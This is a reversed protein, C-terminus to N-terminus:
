PMVSSRSRPKRLLLMENAGRLVEYDLPVIESVIGAAALGARLSPLYPHRTGDLSVLPYIRVERRAVRLLERLSARHFAEDLRDAYLFLFHGCLVLDFAGDAPDLAPLTGGRYRGTAQGGPFDTLFRESAAQRLAWLDKFEGVQALQFANPSAEARAQTHAFDLRTQLAVRANSFRYIPDVSTVRGGQATVEANFSASGAAVDLIAGKFDDELLRFFRRYDALRRGFFVIRDYSLSM